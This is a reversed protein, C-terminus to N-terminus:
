PWRDGFRVGLQEGVRRLMNTNERTGEALDRIAEAVKLSADEQKRLSTEVFDVFQGVLTKHQNLTFRALALIGTVIGGLLVTWESGAEM